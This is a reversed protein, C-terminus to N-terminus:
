SVLADDAITFTVSGTTQGNLIAITTNSLTYDGATIGTGTVALNVTQNGSVASSATATVTIETTGAETGANSSVSLNVTPASPPLSLSFDDIALGHDNAADNREIWRFWLTDNNAWNM